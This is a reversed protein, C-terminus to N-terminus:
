YITKLIKDTGKILEDVDKKEPDKKKKHDCLNRLDALHQIFRWEKTEIVESNKLLQNYGNITADRKTVKIDHNHCVQLLHKELVVGSLAGAGRVFGKKNLEDAADLESDFMDSQVLQQIDYLSSEFRKKASKVINLQQQYQPIAADPGVIKKKEWGETVTLSQMYDEIVYNGYQVQKRARPKKYLNIFDDVRDPLLLKVVALAESYWIQYESKFEPINHIFTKHKNGLRKKISEGVEDPYCEFQIAILLRDGEEILRTLDKRYKDLNSIM